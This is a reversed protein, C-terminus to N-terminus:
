VVRLQSGVKSQIHVEEVIIHKVGICKLKDIDKKISGITAYTVKSVEDCRMEMGEIITYSHKKKTKTKLSACYISAKGGSNIYKLYNQKLLEKSPQLIVVPVQIEEVVKAIIISKGAGTPLVAIGKKKSLKMLKVCSDVADQQYPRLIFM